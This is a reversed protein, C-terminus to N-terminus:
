RGAEDNEHTETARVSPRRRRCWRCRELRQSRFRAIQNPAVPSPKLSGYNDVRTPLAHPIPALLSLLSLTASAPSKQLIRPSVSPAVLKTSAVDGDHESVDAQCTWRVSTSPM